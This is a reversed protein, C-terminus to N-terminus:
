FNFLAKCSIHLPMCMYSSPIRLTM